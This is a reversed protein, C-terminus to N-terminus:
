ERNMAPKGGIAAYVSEPSLAPATQGKASAYIQKEVEMIIVGGFMSFLTSGLYNFMRNLKLMFHRGSPPFFLGMQTQIHTFHTHCLIDRLQSVSYPKGDAFPTGPVGAWSSRRNPVVVLMRGGPVIVHWLADLWPQIHEVHELAHVLLLKNVSNKRLPLQTDHALVTRNMGEAPWYAAGQAAPMVSLVISNNQTKEQRLYPRVYPTAYGFGVMTDGALDPWIRRIAYSLRTRVVRGLPSSYFQRLQMVDPRYM